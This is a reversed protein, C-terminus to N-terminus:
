KIKTKPIEVDSVNCGNDYMESTSRLYSSRYEVVKVATAISLDRYEMCNCPKSPVAVVLITSSLKM